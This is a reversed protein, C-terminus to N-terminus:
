CSSPVERTKQKEEFTNNGRDGGGPLLRNKEDWTLGVKQLVTTFDTFLNLRIVQALSVLALSKQVRHRVTTAM